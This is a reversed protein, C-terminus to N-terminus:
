HLRLYVDEYLSEVTGPPWAEEEEEGETREGAGEAGAAGLGGAGQPGGSAGGAGGEAGGEAGGAAAAAPPKPWSERWTELAFAGEHAGRAGFGRRWGVGRWGLGVCLLHEAEDDGRAEGHGADAAAGTLTFVFVSFGREGKFDGLIEGSVGEFTRQFDKPLSSCAVSRM